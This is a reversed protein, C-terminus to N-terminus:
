LILAIFFYERFLQRRSRKGRGKPTRRRRSGLQDEFKRLAMLTGFIHKTKFNSLSFTTEISCSYVSVCVSLCVWHRVLTYIYSHFLSYCALLSYYQLLSLLLTTDYIFYLLIFLSRLLDGVAM